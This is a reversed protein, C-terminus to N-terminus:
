AAKATIKQQTRLLPNLVQALSTASQGWSQPQLKSSSVSSNKTLSNAIATALAQPNEPPVLSNDHLIEPIGGVKTAIVKTNCAQAELLVNPLGESRSPLVLLDAARYWDPMENLPRPPLIKIQTQQNQSHIQQQLTRKIPGDGILRCHFPISKQALHACANILIDPGKVQALNGVFLILPTGPKSSFHAQPFFLTRDLGNYVVNVKNPNVGLAVCQNALYKSVAIVADAQQLTQATRKKLVPFQNLRSLDSGHVKVAIPLGAERALNVAAWADPYAWAALIIDPHFENLARLFAPRISRQYLHGYYQRFIKPPFLFRPHEIIIDSPDSTEAQIRRTKLEDTWAIPAIIRLQHQKALAAFQQRNFPARHPQRPNPYLNTIALIRM